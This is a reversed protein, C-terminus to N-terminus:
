YDSTKIQEELAVDVFLGDQYTLSLYMTKSSKFTKLSIGKKEKFIWYASLEGYGMTISSEEHGDGKEYPYKYHEYQNAKFYKRSLEESMSNFDDQIHPSATEFLLHSEYFKDNVFKLIMFFADRGSFLINKSTTLSSRKGENKEILDIGREKM